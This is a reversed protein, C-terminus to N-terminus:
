GREAIIIRQIGSYDKVIRVSFKNKSFLKKVSKEQALGIELLIVGKPALFEEFEESIKRYFYLGDEGGDLALHPDYDKVEKDLTKIDESKIYPPNCTIVNFKKGKKIDSFLDSCIFNIKVDSLEANQKAVMLASESIDTATVKAASNKAISVAIAGSGTCLDLVELKEKGIIKLAEEVLIETEKRPTLVDKNVKFTLGYFETKGFIKDIPEGKVRRELM